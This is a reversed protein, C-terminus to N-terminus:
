TRGARGPTHQIHSALSRGIPVAPGGPLFQPQSAQLGHTALVGGQFSLTLAGERGGVWGGLALVCSRM